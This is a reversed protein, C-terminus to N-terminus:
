EQDNALDADDITMVPEKSLEEWPTDSLYVERLRGIGQTRKCRDCTLNKEDDAPPGGDLPHLHKCETQVHPWCDDCILLWVSGAESVLHWWKWEM